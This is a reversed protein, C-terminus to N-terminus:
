KSKVLLRITSILKQGELYFLTACYVIGGTIIITALSVISSNTVPLWFKLLFLIIFMAMSALLPTKLCRLFEIFQLGMVNRLFVQQIIYEIFSFVVLTVVFYIIGFELSLVLGIFLPPFLFLEIKKSIDPRGIAIFISTGKGIIANNLTVMLLIQSITKADLWKQGYLVTIFLEANYIYGLIIPITILFTYHNVKLYGKVLKKIDGQLRSFMPFLVEIIMADAHKVVRLIINKAFSYLGLIETGMLKGLMLEPLTLKLTSIIKYSTIDFGYKVSPKLVSWNFVLSPRWKVYKLYFCFTLVNITIQGFMLSWIGYNNFALVITVLVGCIMAALGILRIIKFNMDRVLLYKQVITVSNFVFQVMAIPLLVKLIELNYFRSIWSSLIMIFIFLFTSVIVILSFVSNVFNPDITKKQVIAPGFGMTQVMRLVTIISSVIAMIGFVEIDLLRYKVISSFFVFIQSLITTISTWKVANYAKEKIGM